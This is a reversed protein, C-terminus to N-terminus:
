NASKSHLKWKSKVLYIILPQLSTVLIFNFSYISIIITSKIANWIYKIEINCM